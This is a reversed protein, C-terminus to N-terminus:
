NPKLAIVYENMERGEPTIYNRYLKFGLRQYFRNASDNNLRDTTLNVHGSGKHAAEALFTHVMRQGVGYGQAEPIVAISMLTACNRAPLEQGPMTFARLLRPLIMPNKLFAGFSAWAFHSLQMRLLRSYLGTPQSTGIVFGLTEEGREAIFCIGNTDCVISSYLYHIFNSGLFSLFFGRFAKLHIDTCVRVDDTNMKRLQIESM